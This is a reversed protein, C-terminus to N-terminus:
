LDAPLGVREASAEWLGRALDRDAAQRNLRGPASLRDFYNGSPAPVRPAGALRILPEAGQETSIAARKMVSMVPGNGGFSSAVFGPHFAFADVGTGTLRRALERTFLVNELKATGYARMGGLWPGRMADLDDLRVDGFLNGASSTQVIRVAGPRDDQATEVLRPLLLRTLLYPALHNSQFTLESGDGTVHREPLLGGANNALVHIRPHDALLRDALEHVQSLQSFDALYATGGTEAAVQRTREENRGVVAVTAGRRALAAAAARGIGSSAGTLVVTRDDLRQAPPVTVTMRRM